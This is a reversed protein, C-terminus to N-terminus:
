PNQFEQIFERIAIYDPILIEKEFADIDEFYFDPDLDQGAVSTIKEALCLLRSIEETTLDTKVAQLMHSVLGPIKPLMEPSFAKEQIAFLVQTQRERRSADSTDAGAQERLRAYDLAQWGNMHRLGASYYGVAAPIEIEIGGISEVGLLFSWFNLTVYHDVKIGFNLNLVQALLSAGGGPLDYENGYAYVMKLRTEYIGRPQLPPVAVMLDRPISVMSASANRFDVRIIRIADAFGVQYDEPSLHENNNGEYDKAILLFYQVAQDSNCLPISTPTPPLPTITIVPNPDGEAPKAAPATALTITPYQTASDSLILEEGFLHANQFSYWGILLIVIIILTLYIFLYPTRFKGIGKQQNDTM